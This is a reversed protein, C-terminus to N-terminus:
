KVQELFRQVRVAVNRPETGCVRIFESVREQSSYSQLPEKAAFVRVLGSFVAPERESLYFTLAWSAAYANQISRQDKFLADGRVLSEIDNAFKEPQGEYTSQYAVLLGPDIRESRPGNRRGEIMAPSQFLCGVGEIIWHPTEAFRNHVGTNFGSQHAAEHCITAAVGGSQAGHDYMVIRNSARDYVGLLGTASIGLRKLYAQMSAQDPLVIAVMPFNGSRVRVGRVTFYNTFTRHLQEFVDAWRERVSRPQVVLYHTTAVVEFDRGFEASLQARMEIASMPQFSGQEVRLDVEKVRPDIDHIWGDNGLVIQRNIATIVELGFVPRGDIVGRVLQPPEARVSSCLVVVQLVFITALCFAQHRVLVWCPKTM